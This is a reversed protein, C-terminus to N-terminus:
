GGNPAGKPQMIDTPATVSRFASVPVQQGDVDVVATPDTRQLIGGVIKIGDGSLGKSWEAYPKGNLASIASAYMEPKMTQSFAQDYKALRQYPQPNHPDLYADANRNYFDTAGQAYDAHYQHSVLLANAMDKNATPQMDLNPNANLYLEMARFGGRAGLDGREQKGAGMLAIKNFEQAPSADGTVSNAFDPAFTQVWNKFQARAAGGAGTATAPNEALTRLQFLQQKAPTVNDIVHELTDNVIKGDDTFQQHQAEQRAKQRETQEPGPGEIVPPTTAGAMGPPIAGIGVGGVDKYEMQGTEPNYSPKVESGRGLYTPGRYLNGFRDTTIAQNAEAAKTPGALEYTRFQQAAARIAAPDGPPMPLILGRKQLQGVLNQRRELDAAQAMLDDSKPTAPTGPITPTAPLASQTGPEAYGWGKLRNMVDPIYGPAPTGQTTGTNYGTAALAPDGGSAAWHQKFYRASAMLNVQPDRAQTESLGMGPWTGSNIQGPGVDISGNSNKNDPAALNWGSEHHVTAIWPAWAEQPLGAATAANVAMTRAAPDSISALAPKVLDGAPSNPSAGASTPGAPNPSSPAAGGNMLQQMLTPDSFLKTMMQNSALTLPLASAAGVNQIQQGQTAAQQAQAKQAAQLGQGFGGAGAGLVAGLPTRKYPTPMAAQGFGQAMGLLGMMTPNTVLGNQSLQDLFTGSM